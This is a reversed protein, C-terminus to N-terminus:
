VNRDGKPSEVKHFKMRVEGTALDFHLTRYGAGTVNEVSIAYGLKTLLQQGHAVNQAGVNATPRHKSVPFMLGGGFLKVVYERPRTGAEEIARTLLLLADTGYKGDLDDGKTTASREPLLYHCMGGIHHKPHWFTAAVCSGLLTRVRLEPGGFVWEGPKLTTEGGRRHPM